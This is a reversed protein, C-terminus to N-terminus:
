LTSPFLSLFFIRVLIYLHIAEACKSCKDAISESFHNQNTSLTGFLDIGRYTMHYNGSCSCEKLTWRFYRFGINTPLVSFTGVNENGCGEGSRPECYSSGSSANDGLLIWKSDDNEEGDNFGFLKWTKAFCLGLCGRFSYHTPKLHRNIFEFQIYSGISNSSGWYSSSSSLVVNNPNSSGTGTAKIIGSSIPDSITQRITYIIGNMDDGNPSIPGIVDPLSM